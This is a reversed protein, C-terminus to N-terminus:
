LCMLLDGYPSPCRDKLNLIIIPTPRASTRWMVRTSSLETSDGRRKWRLHTRSIPSPGGAQSVLGKVQQGAWGGTGRQKELPWITLVEIKSPCTVRLVLVWKEFAGSFVSHILWSGCVEKCVSLGVWLGANLSPPPPYSVNSLTQNLENDCFLIFGLPVSCPVHPLRPLPATATQLLQSDRPIPARLSVERKRGLVQKSSSDSEPRM